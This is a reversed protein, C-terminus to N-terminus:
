GCERVMDNKSLFQTALLIIAILRGLNKTFGSYFLMRETTTTKGADVHAIVGINRIRSLIEDYKNISSLNRMFAPSDYNFLLYKLNSLITKSQIFRNKIFLISM